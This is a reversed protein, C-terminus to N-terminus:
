DGEKQTPEAKRASLDSQPSAAPRSSEADVVGDAASEGATTDNATSDRAPKSSDVFATSRLSSYTRLREIQGRLTDMAVLMSSEALDRCRQLKSQTKNREAEWFSTAAQVTRLKQECMERRLQAKRFRKKEETCPRREEARVYSMCRTLADRCEALHRQAKVSEEAWYGRAEEGLWNSLRRLELELNEIEALLQQRFRSIQELFLELQELSRVDAKDAM